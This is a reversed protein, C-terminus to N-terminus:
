RRVVSELQGQLTKCRKEAMEARQKAMDAEIRVRSLEDLREGERQISRSLKSATDSMQARAASLTERNQAQAQVLKARLDEQQTLLDRKERTWNELALELDLRVSQM